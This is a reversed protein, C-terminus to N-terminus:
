SPCLHYFADLPLSFYKWVDKSCTSARLGGVGFKVTEM